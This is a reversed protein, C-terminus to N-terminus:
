HAPRKPPPDFTLVRTIQVIEDSTVRKADYYLVGRGSRVQKGLALKVVTGTVSDAGAEELKWQVGNWAGLPSDEPAHIESRERAVGLPTEILDRMLDIRIGTLNSLTPGGELVYVDDLERTVVLTDESKKRMGRQKSLSSFERYEPETLGLLSDYPVPEGPKAKRVQDIWWDPNRAVAQQLRAGLESLRTPATLEMVDVVRAGEFLVDRPDVSDAHAPSRKALAHTGSGLRVVSSDRPRDSGAQAVLVVLVVFIRM